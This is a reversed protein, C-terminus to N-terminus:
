TRLIPATNAKIPPNTFQNGIINLNVIFGIINFTCNKHINKPTLM